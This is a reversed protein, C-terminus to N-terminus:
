FEVNSMKINLKMRPLSTKQLNIYYKIKCFPNEKLFLKSHNNEPNM